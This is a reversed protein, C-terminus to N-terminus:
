NTSLAHLTVALTEAGLADYANNAQIAYSVSTSAAACRGHWYTGYLSIGSNTAGTDQTSTLWFSFGQPNGTVKAFDAATLVFAENDAIPTGPPDSFLWLVGQLKTSPNRSSYIDLQPITFEGGPRRCVGTLVGYSGGFATNPTYTLTGAPRATTSTAVSSCGFSSCTATDALASAAFVLSLALSALIALPRM